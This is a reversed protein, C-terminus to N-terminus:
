DMRDLERQRVRLRWADFSVPDIRRHHGEGDSNFQNSKAARSVRVKAAAPSLDDVDDCLLTAAETVTLRADPPEGIHITLQARGAGVLAKHTAEPLWCLHGETTTLQRLRVAEGVITLENM